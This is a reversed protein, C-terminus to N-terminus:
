NKWLKKLRKKNYELQDISDEFPEYHNSRSDKQHSSTNNDNADDM